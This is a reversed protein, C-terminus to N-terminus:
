RTLLHHTSCSPALKPLFRSGRHGFFCFREVAQSLRNECCGFTTGVVPKSAARKECQGGHVYEFVPAPCSLDNNCRREAAGQYDKRDDAVSWAPRYVSLSHRVLLGGLVWLHTRHLRPPRLRRTLGRLTDCRSAPATLIPHTSIIVLNSLPRFFALISM